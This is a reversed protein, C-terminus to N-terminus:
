GKYWRYLTNIALDTLINKSEIVTRLRVTALYAFLNEAAIKARWAKIKTYSFTTVM